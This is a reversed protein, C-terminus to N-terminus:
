APKGLYYGQAFDVEFEDIKSHIDETLQMKKFNIM